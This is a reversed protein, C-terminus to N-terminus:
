SLFPYPKYFSTKNVCIDCSMKLGRYHPVVEVFLVNCRRTLGVLPHPPSAFKWHPSPIFFRKIGRHLFVSISCLPLDCYLPAVDPYYGRTHCVQIVKTGTAKM